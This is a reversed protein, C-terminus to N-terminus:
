TKRCDPSSRDKLWRGSEDVFKKETTCPGVGAGFSCLGQEPGPQERLGTTGMGAGLEGGESRQSCHPCSDVVGVGGGAPGDSANGASSARRRGTWGEM